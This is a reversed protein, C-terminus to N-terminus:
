SPVPGYTQKYEDPQIGYVDQPGSYVLVGGTRILMEEGWPATFAVNEGVTVVKRPDPRPQFMGQEGAPEYISEFKAIDVLYQEGTPNTVKYGGDPGATKSTEVHGDAMITEVKTGPPVKEAKVKATKQALFYETWDVDGAPQIVRFKEGDSTVSYLHDALDPPPDMPTGRVGKQVDAIAEGAISYELYTDEDGAALAAQERDHIQELSLLEYYRSYASDEEMPGAGASAHFMVVFAALWAHKAPDFRFGVNHILSM